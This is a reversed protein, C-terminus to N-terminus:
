VSTRFAQNGVRQGPTEMKGAAFAAFDVASLPRSFAYGQLEDCGVSAAMTGHELSEVGEAIVKIGLSHGIEAVTRLLQLQSPSGVIPAVLQRDIKLRQPKLKV